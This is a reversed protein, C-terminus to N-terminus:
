GAAESSEQRRCTKLRKKSRKQQKLPFFFFPIILSFALFFFSLFSRRNTGQKKRKSLPIYNKPGTDLQPRLVKWEEKKTKDKPNEFVTRDLMAMACQVISSKMMLDNYMGHFLKYLHQQSELEYKWELGEYACDWLVLPIESAIEYQPKRVNKELDL